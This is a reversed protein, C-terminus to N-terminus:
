LKCGHFCQKALIFLVFLDPVDKQDLEFTQQEQLDQLRNNTWM